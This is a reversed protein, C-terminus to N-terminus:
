YSISFRLTPRLAMDIDEVVIRGYQSRLKQQVLNEFM